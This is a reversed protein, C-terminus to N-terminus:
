RRVRRHLTTVKSSSGRQHHRRPRRHNRLRVKNLIRINTTNLHHRSTPLSRHLHPLSATHPCKSSHPRFTLPHTMPHLLTPPPHRLQYPPLRQPIDSSISKRKRTEPGFISQSSSTRPISIVTVFPFKAWDQPSQRAFHLQFWMQQM